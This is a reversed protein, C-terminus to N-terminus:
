VRLQTNLTVSLKDKCQSSISRSSINFFSEGSDTYVTIIKSIRKSISVSLEFEHNVFFICSCINFVEQFCIQRCRNLTKIILKSYIWHMLKIQESATVWLHEIFFNGQQEKFYKAFKVHATLHIKWFKKSWSNQLVDLRTIPAQCVDVISSKAFITLVYCNSIM